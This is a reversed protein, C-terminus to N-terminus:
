PKRRRHSPPPDAAGRPQPLRRSRDRVPPVPVGTRIEFLRRQAYDMESWVARVRSTMRRLPSRDDTDAAPDDPDEDAPQIAVPERRPAYAYPHHFADVADTPTVDFAFSEDARGDAIAISVQNTASDWLLTVDIGNNSRHDLERIVTYRPTRTKPPKM